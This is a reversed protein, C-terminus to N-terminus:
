IPAVTSIRNQEGKNATSTERLREALHIVGEMLAIKSNQCHDTRTTDLRGHEFYRNAPPGGGCFAFYPCSARCQEVGRVYDSIWRASMGRGIIQNLSAHLVNGCAFDGYHDSRFGALEPSILTVSGDWAVTPLPDVEIASDAPDDTTAGNLVQEVYDLVRSAERLRVVPNARWEEILAAWFEVVEAQTPAMRRRNVGEREEINVGLWVAGLQVVFAYLARARQPTPDSVVAIVSVDIGRTALLRIGRTIHAFAPKGAWDIRQRNDNPPGDISVGVHVNREALFDAWKQDILTANTQVGHAVDLGTFRDMLRGLYVLGTALPEGGHWCIEVTGRGTWEAISAAVADVVMPSM